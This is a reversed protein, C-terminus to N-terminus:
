NDSIIRKLIEFELDFVKQLEAGPVVDGTTGMNADAFRSGFTLVTVTGKGFRLSAAIPINGAWLFPDAGEIRLASDINIVPWNEPAKLQGKYSTTRNINIDFPYLLSNATSDLNEPSDLIFIKGGNTVYNVLAERFENEVTQNPQMFVILNGSIADIGKKRATFYGLRLIWREFIGFGNKQGSIFGSRSLPADCVTRDITVNIMPRKAEPLPMSYKHITRASASAVAWGFMISTIIILWSCSDYLTTRNRQENRNDDATNRSSSRLRVVVSSFVIILGSIILFVTLNFRANKHNLWEIMGLMLEAKGPEFTAFNSFITSDTFAVVRGKGYRKSWLQIFAGYRMEARNEVQPYYNSAHYDASLNKLGTSRIVAKGFSIGPDISCSVAFNLPPINQIIPHPVAPPEYLQEFTTDIDFLCDYQFRFGFVRAIDNIYTGSNFVSTHEGVLMLGGGNRVFNEIIQIENPEYRSTPVKIILVDCNELATKGISTNLRSMNYFRSCYDYICAYNYGSDQGYWETDYPKDTREWKSHFEDVFVRENKRTGPMDFLFGSVLLFSGLFTLATIFIIRYHQNESQPAFIQELEFPKHVFRLVILVPGTLLLMLLWPNWLQTVLALDSEYETRLARNMFITMILAARVPLWAAISIILFATQKLLNTDKSKCLLLIVIGGFLFAFTAPDFFMEWTAGLLHVTRQTYMAINSGDYASTIGVIRAIGYVLYSILRPLEHSRSTIYEYGLIAISQIALVTGALLFASALIRPWRRPVPITVFVLGAFILLPALRYPWPAMKIVPLLLIAALGAEFSTPKRIEVGLLIAIGAAILLAWIIYQANHYYSLGFLWSESFLALSIWTRKM